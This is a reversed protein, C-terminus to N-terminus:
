KLTELIEDKKEDLCYIRFVYERHDQNILLSFNGPVVSNGHYFHVNNLPNTSGGVYGVTFRMIHYSSVDFREKMMQEIQECHGSHRARETGLSIDQYVLKPLDRTHIKRINPHPQQFVLYDVLQIMKEPDDLYKSIGMKKELDHLLQVILIEIAKVAKHNYIQRHLRYRLFFMQYIDESCQSSYCIEDGIVRADM